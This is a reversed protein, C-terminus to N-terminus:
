SNLLSYLNIVLTLIIGAVIVVTVFASRPKSRESKPNAEM